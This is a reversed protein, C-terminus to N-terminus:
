MVSAEPSEATDRGSVLIRTVRGGQYLALATKLRAELHVFPKGDYVRAGPVIAVNRSPVQEVSAYARGATARAVWANSALLGAIALAALLCGGQIARLFKRGATARM